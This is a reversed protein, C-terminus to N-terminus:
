PTRTTDLSEINFPPYIPAHQCTEHEFINTTNVSIPFVTFTVEVPSKILNRSTPQQINVTNVRRPELGIASYLFMGVCLTLVWVKSLPNLLSCLKFFYIFNLHYFLFSSFHFPIFHSAIFRFSVFRFSISYILIHFLILNSLIFEFLFFM